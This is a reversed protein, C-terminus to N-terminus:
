IMKKKLIGREFFKKILDIETEIREAVVYQVYPGLFYMNKILNIERLCEFPYVYVSEQLELFGLNGLKARLIDRRVKKDNAIDYIVLRWKKDWKKPIPLILDQTLYNKLKKKGKELLEIQFEKGDFYKKIFGARSLRYIESRFKDKDKARSKDYYYFPIRYVRRKDFMPIVWRYVDFFYLLIQRAIAATKKLQIEDIKIEDIKRSGYDTKVKDM